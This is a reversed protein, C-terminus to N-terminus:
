RKRLRWCIFSLIEFLNRTKSASPLGFRIRLLMSVAKLHFASLLFHKMQPIWDTWQYM